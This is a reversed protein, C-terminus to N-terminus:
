ENVSVEAFVGDKNHFKLELEILDPRFCHYDHLFQKIGEEIERQTVLEMLGFTGNCSVKATFGESRSYTVSGVDVNEPEEVYRKAIGVCIGDIVEQENLLLRM